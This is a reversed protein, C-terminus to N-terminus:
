KGLFSGYFRGKISFFIEFNAGNLWGFSFTPPQLPLELTLFIHGELTSNGSDVSPPHSMVAELELELHIWNERGEVPVQM